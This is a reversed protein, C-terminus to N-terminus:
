VFNNRDGIEISVEHPLFCENTKECGPVSTGPPIQVSTNEAFALPMSVIMAIGFIAMIPIIGKQMKM